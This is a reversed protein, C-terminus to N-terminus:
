CVKKLEGAMADMLTVRYGERLSLEILTKLNPDDLNDFNYEVELYKKYEIVVRIM